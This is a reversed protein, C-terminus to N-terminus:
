NNTRDSVVLNEVIESVGETVMEASNLSVCCALQTRKNWLYPWRSCVRGPIHETGLFHRCHTGRETPMKVNHFVSDKGSSPPVAVVTLDCTELQCRPRGVVHATEVM